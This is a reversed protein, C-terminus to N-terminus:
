EGVTPADLNMIPISYQTGIDEGAKLSDLIPRLDAENILLNGDLDGSFRGGWFEAYQDVETKNLLILRKIRAYDLMSYFNRARTSKVDNVGVIYFTYSKSKTDVSNRSTTVTVVYKGAETFERGNALEDETFPTATLTGFDVDTDASYKYEVSNTYNTPAAEAIAKVYTFWGNHKIEAGDRDTAVFAGGDPVFGLHYEGDDTKVTKVKLNRAEPLTSITVSTYGFGENLAKDSVVFYYIGSEDAFYSGVGGTLETTGKNTLGTVEDLTSKAAADATGDFYVTAYVKNDAEVKLDSTVDTARVAIPVKNENNPEGATATVEPATGDFKVTATAVASVNGAEDTVKVSVTTTGDESITIGDAPMEAWDNTESAEGIIYQTMAITNAEVIAINESTITIVTKAWEAPVGTFSVVPATTDIRLEAPTYTKVPIYVVPANEEEGGIKAIVYYYDETDATLKDTIATASGGEYLAKYDPDTLEAPNSVYKLSVGNPIETVAIEKSQTWKDEVTGFVAAEEATPVITVTQTPYIIEATQGAVEGPLPAVANYFAIGPNEFTVDTNGFKAGEKVTLTITTVEGDELLADAEDVAASGYVFTNGDKKVLGEKDDFKTFEFVSEEYRMDFSVMAAKAGNLETVKVPITITGKRNIGNTIEGSIKNDIQAKVPAHLTFNYTEEVGTATVVVRYDGYGQNAEAGSIPVSSFTKTDANYLDAIKTEGKYVVASIPNTASASIVVSEAFYTKGKVIEAKSEGEGIYAKAENASITLTLPTVTLNGDEVSYEESYGTDGGSIIFGTVYIGEGDKIDATGSATDNVKFTYSFIDTDETSVNKKETKSDFNYYIIGKGNSETGADGSVPTLKNADYGMNLSILNFEKAASAMKAYATITVEDGPHVINDTADSQYRVTVGDEGASRLSIDEAANVSAPIVLAFLMAFVTIFSLVKKM